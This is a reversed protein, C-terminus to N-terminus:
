RKSKSENYLKEFLAMTQIDVGKNRQLRKKMRDFFEEWDSETPESDYDWADEDARKFQWKLRRGHLNVRVERKVGDETKLVWSIERM